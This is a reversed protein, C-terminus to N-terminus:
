ARGHTGHNHRDLYSQLIERAALEDRTGKKQKGPRERMYQDALQSSLREDERTVPKQCAERLAQIFDDLEGGPQSVGGSLPRPWGVVIRAVEEERCLAAIKEIAQRWDSVTITPRGFAYRREPDSVAVGIRRLGFDIGLVKGM